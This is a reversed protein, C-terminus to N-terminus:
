LTGQLSPQVVYTALLWTTDRRMSATAGIVGSADEAVWCGRPDHRVLHEIRFRWSEAREPSRHEPEPWGTRHTRVDLDYFAADSLREVAPTDAVTMPRVVYDANMARWRIM